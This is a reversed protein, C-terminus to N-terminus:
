EGSVSTADVPQTAPQTTPQPAWPLIYVSAQPWILPEETPASKSRIPFKGENLQRILGLPELQALVRLQPMAAPRLSDFMGETLEAPYGYSHALRWMEAWNVVIHTVGMEKLRAMIEAPDLGDQVMQQLPHTDFVTAYITDDPWYFARNDGILMVSPQYSESVLGAEFLWRSAHLDEQEITHLPQQWRAAARSAYFTYKNHATLLNVGVAACLLAVAVTRGWPAGSASQRKRLPNYQVTALRSLMGAGLLAMPVLAPTLFRPPMGHAFMAWMAIQVMLMVALSVDWAGPSNTAILVCIALGALLMGLRGLDESSILNTLLLEARTTPHTQEQWTAPAPVPPLKEPGHGDVWRQESEASWHGRGFTGTALPFVPNGTYAYNRILWPSFVILAVLCIVPLYGLVRRTNPILMATVVMAVLLPAAVLGVSLYKVCCACGIALGLCIASRGRQPKLKDRLFLERLWLVALTMNLIIGLDVMALWSLSLVLPVTGLLAAAFRGRGPQDQEPDKLSGFVACVALAAFVGHIMTAAHMGGHAGTRLCMALLFLMEGGLPYYSYCNHQLETIQGTTIYERPIQLHYELVDYHDAFLLMGPPLAAGALWIGSALALLVWLLSRGDFRAPMKWGEIAKFGPKAALLIGIGVVPWWLWPTLTNPLLTGVTLIATSLLWFGATCATAVRLAAPAKEPLFSRIVLYGYGAAATTILIALGCETVLRELLYVAAVVSYGSLHILMGAGAIAIM